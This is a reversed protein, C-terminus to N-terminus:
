STWSPFHEHLFEVLQLFDDYTLEAGNFGRESEATMLRRQEGAAKMERISETKAKRMRKRDLRTFRDAYPMDEFVKPSAFTYTALYDGDQELALALVYWGRRVRGTRPVEFRWMLLNVHQQVAIEYELTERNHLTVSNADARLERGSPWNQKLYRDLLNAVLAGLGISSVGTILAPLGMFSLLLFILIISGALTGCGAARIGGHEVDVPLVLEGIETEPPPTNKLAVM